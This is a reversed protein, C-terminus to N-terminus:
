EGAPATPTLSWAQLQQAVNKLIRHPPSDVAVQVCAEEVQRQMEALDALSIEAKIHPSKWWPKAQPAYRSSDERENCM